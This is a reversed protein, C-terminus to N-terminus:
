EWRRTTTAEGCALPDAFGVVPTHDDTFAGMEACPSTASPVFDALEPDAEISALDFDYTARWGALDFEGGAAGYGEAEAFGFSAAGSSWHYCNEDMTIGAALADHEEDSMYPNFVITRQEGSHEDATDVVINGDFSNESVDGWPGGEADAWELSPSVDLGTRAVITNAYMRQDWQHTPGGFDRSSIGIRGDVVVNHHVDAHATGIGIGFTNGEFYGDSIEFTGDPSPSAHKYKVGFGSFQSDPGESQYFACGRIAVAGSNSFLVLNGSNETQNGAEAAARDYNDAFVSDRIEVDSSGLVELGAVNDAVTGDTDYVLVHAVEVDQVSELRIGREWGGRVEFGDIVIGSSLSILIPQAQESPELIPREGPYRKITIPADGGEVGRLYLLYSGGGEPGSEDGPHFIQSITGDRVYLVDGSRLEIWQPPPPYLNYYISSDVNVFTRWPAAFSGDGADDGATPDIYFCRGEGVAECPPEVPPEECEPPADGTSGDTASGTDTADATDDVDDTTSGSDSAATPGDTSPGDDGATSAGTSDSSGSDGTGSGCAATLVLVLVRPRTTMRVASVRSGGSRNV